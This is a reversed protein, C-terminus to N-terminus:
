EVVTAEAFFKGDWLYFKGARRMAEAGETTLFAFVIRKRDGPKLTETGLQLEASYMMEPKANTAACPCRLTARLETSRGGEDARYLRVDATLDPGRGVSGSM